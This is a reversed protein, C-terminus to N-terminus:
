MNFKRKIQNMMDDANIGKENCLNRAMKEVGQMDGNQAMQMANKILPNSMIQNNGMMQQLIQQPNGNKMMQFINLPNM